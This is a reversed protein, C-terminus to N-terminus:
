HVLNPLNNILGSTFSLLQQLMWSGLVLIVAAIGIIKPIFNLTVENIQTVSQVLSIIGGIVLSVLLIPGALELCVYLANQVLSLVYGEDM